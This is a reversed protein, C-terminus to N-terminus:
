HAVPVPFEKVAWLNDPIDGQQGPFRGSAQKVFCPIGAERCQDATSRIWAIDCPRAQHGSEGGVIVWHIDALWPTLDVPGILPECSLFRRGPVKLLQPTLTDATPQDVVSTGTIVNRPWHGRLWEGPVYEMKTANGPRKTLLQFEVDFCAPLAHDFFRSRIAGTTMGLPNGQWDCAPLPKEFIDMMSGCFVRVPTVSKMAARQWKQLSNWIGAVAYRTGEWASSKGKAHAYTRAYCHDCGAHVETCGWWLNATHTTWSINSNDAM